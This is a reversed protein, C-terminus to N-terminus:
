AELAFYYAILYILFLFNGFFNFQFFCFHYFLLIPTVQSYYASFIKIVGLLTINILM